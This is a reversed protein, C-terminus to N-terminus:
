YRVKFKITHGEVTRQITGRLRAAVTQVVREHYALRLRPLFRGGLVQGRDLDDLIPTLAGAQNRQFGIDGYANGFTNRPVIVDATQRTQEHYYQGLPLGEGEQIEPCGLDRLATVLLHRDKFAMDTFTLYKSM